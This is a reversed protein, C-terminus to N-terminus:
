GGVARLPMEIQAGDMARGPSAPALDSRGVAAATPRAGLLHLTQHYFHLTQVPARLSEPGARAIAYGEERVRRPLARALPHRLLRRIETGNRALLAACLGDLYDLM